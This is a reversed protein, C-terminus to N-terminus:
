VVIPVFGLLFIIQSWFEIYSVCTVYQRFLISIILLLIVKSTILM